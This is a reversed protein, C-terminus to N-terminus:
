TTPGPTRAPPLARLFASVERSSRLIVARQDARMERLRRLVAPRRQSPYSWIWAAFEWSFQEPCGPAMDPRTQGRYRLWRGVARALCQIRPLDLFIVTDCANMRVDFTGGYNGDMVWAPAAALERVRAEWEDKPTERWGANWFEADLHVLPLGLRAALEAALTSKGAGGSGVVLVRQMPAPMTTM